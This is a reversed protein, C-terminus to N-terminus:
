VSVVSSQLTPYGLIKVLYNAPSELQLTELKPQSVPLLHFFLTMDAGRSLASFVSGGRM